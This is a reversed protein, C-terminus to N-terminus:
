GGGGDDGGGGGGSGPDDSESLPPPEYYDEDEDDEDEDVDDVDHVAWSLQGRRRVEIPQGGGSGDDDEDDEDGDDEDEDEDEEGYVGKGRHAGAGHASHGGFGWNGDEDGIADVGGCSREGHFVGHATANPMVVRPRAVEESNRAFFSDSDADSANDDGEGEGTGLGGEESSLSSSLQMLSRPMNSSTHWRSGGVVVPSGVAGGVGFGSGHSGRSVAGPPSPPGRPGRCPIGGALKSYPPAIGITALAGASGSPTPPLPGTAVGGAGVVVVDPDLPEDHDGAGSHMSAVDQARVLRGYEGVDGWSSARMAPAADGSVLVPSVASATPPLTTRSLQRSSMPPTVPVSATASASAPTSPQQDGRRWRLSSLSFRSRPRPEDTTPSLSHVSSAMRDSSTLLSASGRRRELGKIAQVGAASSSTPTRTDSSRSRPPSSIRLPPRSGSATSPHTEARSHTTSKSSSQAPRSNSTHAHRSSEKKSNYRSMSVSPLSRVGVDDSDSHRGDVSRFSRQPRIRLLSTLRNTLRQRWRFRIPSVADSIADETVATVVKSDPLTERVWRERDPIDRLFWRHRQFFHNSQTPPEGYAVFTM